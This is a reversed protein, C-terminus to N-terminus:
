TDGNSRSSKNGVAFYASMHIFDATYTREWSFEVRQITNDHGEQHAALTM